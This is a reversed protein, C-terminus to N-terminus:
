KTNQKSNYGSTMQSNYDGFFNSENSFDYDRVITELQAATYAFNTKSNLGQTLIAIHDYYKAAEMESHIAGIYVKKQNIMIMMQWKCKNKSVGRFKSGRFTDEGMNHHPRKPKEGILIADPASKSVANMIEAKQQLFQAVNMNKKIQAKLRIFASTGEYKHEASELFGQQHLTACLDSQREGSNLQKQRLINNILANKDQHEHAKAASIAHRGVSSSSQEQPILLKQKQDGPQQSKQALPYLGQM